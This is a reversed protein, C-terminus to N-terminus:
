PVELNSLRTSSVLSIKQFLASVARSDVIDSLVVICAVSNKERRDELVKAAKKLADNKAPVGERSQDIAALAEVIRRASRQGGGTMRKLPLLRKSGG